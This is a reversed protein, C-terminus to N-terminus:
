FYKTWEALVTNVTYNDVGTSTHRLEHRVAFDLTMDAALDHTWDLQARSTYNIGGDRFRYRAYGYSPTLVDQRDLNFAWNLNGGDVRENEGINIFDRREDFLQVRFQSASFAYTATAAFRKQIFIRRELLSPLQIEPLETDILGLRTRNLLLRNFDTPTENYTFDTTLNPGQHRWDMQYSHGYFRHGVLLTFQNLASALRFGASWFSAGLKDVTGDPLFKNEAGFNALLQTFGTVQYQLGLSAQEFSVDHGVDPNLREDLFSLNYTLDGYQPQRVLSFFLNNSTTDPIQSDSYVARGYAYRLTAVGLSGFDHMLYPSLTTASVNTRNGNVGFINSSGAPKEPNVIQQDYITSADFFLTKSIAEITGNADLENYVHNESGRGAYILGQLTYNVNANLRPAQYNLDFGPEVETIFAHEKDPSNDPKLFLNDTYIEGLTIRPHFTLEGACAGPATFIAVALLTGACAIGACGADNRTPRMRLRITAAM